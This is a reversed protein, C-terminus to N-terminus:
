SGSDASVVQLVEDEFLKKVREADRDARRRISEAESATGRSDLIHGEKGREPLFISMNCYEGEPIEFQHRMWIHRRRALLQMRAQRNEEFLDRYVGLPDKDADETGELGHDMLFEIGKDFWTKVDGGLRIRRLLSPILEHNTEWIVEINWTEWYPAIQNAVMRRARRTALDGVEEEIDSESLIAYVTGGDASSSQARHHLLRRLRPDRLSMGLLVVDADPKEFLERLKQDAWNGETDLYDRESLIVQGENFKSSTSLPLFGHLHVVSLEERLFQRFRDGDLRERLLDIVADRGFYERFEAEVAAIEEDELAM